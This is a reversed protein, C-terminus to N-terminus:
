RCSLPTPAIECGGRERDTRIRTPGAGTGISPESDASRRARGSRRPRVRGRRDVRDRLDGRPRATTASSPARQARGASRASRSSRPRGPGASRWWNACSRRRSSWLIRREGSSGATLHHPRRRGEALVGSHGQRAGDCTRAAARRGQGATDAHPRRPRDRHLRRRHRRSGCSPRDPRDHRAPRDDRSARAPPAPTAAAVTQGLEFLRVGLYLMDGDRDLFRQEVLDAAIRSVTSKPLNARRALESVGLGEDHEGFAEFVATVRDLVSVSETWDATRM